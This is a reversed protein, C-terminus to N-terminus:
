ARENKREEDMNELFRSLPRFALIAFASNLLATPIMELWRYSDDILGFLHFIFFILNEHIFVSFFVTIVILFVNQQFYQYILACTYPVIAMAFAYVGIVDSYLIDQIMGFVLGIFFARRRGIYLSIFILVVLGFRPVPLVSSGWTHSFIQLITGELVLLALLIVTLVGWRM